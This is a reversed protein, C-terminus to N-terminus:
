KKGGQERLRKQEAIATARAIAWENAEQIAKGFPVFTGDHFDYFNKRDCLTM